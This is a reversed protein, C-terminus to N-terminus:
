RKSVLVQGPLLYITENEKIIYDKNKKFIDAVSQLTDAEDTIYYSYTAVPLLIVQGAYIYDEMDLGNLSALLTPNINYKKAIEYLTDGSTITYSDFYKQKNKPVIIDMGERLSEDYYLNNLDSLYEKNTNYKKAISELSDNAKVRYKEFM